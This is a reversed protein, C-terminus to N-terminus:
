GTPMLWKIRRRALDNLESYIDHVDDDVFEQLDQSGTSHLFRLKKDGFAFRKRHIGEPVPFFTHLYVPPLEKRKRSLSDKMNITVGDVFEDLGDYFVKDLNRAVNQSVMGKVHRKHMGEAAYLSIEFASKLSEIVNDGGWDFDNMFNVGKSNISFMVTKNDNSEVYVADYFGMEKALMYARVSGGEFLHADEVFKDRRVMTIALLIEIKKGTFGQPNFVQHGDIKIGMVRADTLIIDVENVELREAAGVKLGDFLKWIAHSIYNELDVMGLEEDPNSRPIEVFSFITVASDSDLDIIEKM